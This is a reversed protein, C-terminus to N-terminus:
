GPRKRLLALLESRKRRAVPLTDGNSLILQGGENQLYNKISNLNVLHSRHNRFFIGEPLLTTLEKLNKSVLLPREHSFILRSYSGEAECRLINVVPLVILGNQTPLSLTNDPGLQRQALSSANKPDLKARRAKAVALRLEDVDIPKVLYDLAAYKIAQIAYSEYATFFIVQFGSHGLLGDLVEFGNGGKLQIDLFLLDPRVEKALLIAENVAAAEGVIEVEDPCFEDLLGRLTVRNAQEDDILLARLM